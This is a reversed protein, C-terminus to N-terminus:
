MQPLSEFHIDQEDGVDKWKVEQLMVYWNFYVSIFICKFGVWFVVYGKVYLMGGTTFKHELPKTKKKWFCM